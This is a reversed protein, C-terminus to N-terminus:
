LEAFIEALRHQDFSWIQAHREFRLRLCVVSHVHRQVLVVEHDADSFHLVSHRVKQKPVVVAERHVKPHRIQQEPNAHELPSYKDSRNTRTNSEKDWKKLTKQNKQTPNRSETKVRKQSRVHSEGNRSAGISSTRGRRRKGRRNGRIKLNNRSEFVKKETIIDELKEQYGCKFNYLHDCFERLNSFLEIGFGRNYQTVKMLWLNKNQNFSEALYTSYYSMLKNNKTPIQVPRQTKIFLIRLMRRMDEDKSDIWNQAKETGNLPGKGKKEHKEIGTRNGQKTKKQASDRPKNRPKQASNAKNLNNTSKSPTQEIENRGLQEQEQEKTEVHEEVKEQEKETEQTEKERQEEAEKEPKKEM